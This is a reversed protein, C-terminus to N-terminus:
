DVYPRNLKNLRNDAFYTLVRYFFHIAKTAKTLGLKIMMRRIFILYWNLFREYYPLDPLIIKSFGLDRSIQFKSFYENNQAQQVSTTHIRYFALEADLFYFKFGAKTLKLWMPRDEWFPFEEEFYGVLNFISRKFFTTPAVVPCARLLIKYQEQPTISLRNFKWEPKGRKQSFNSEKFDEFYIKAIGHIVQINRKLNAKTFDICLKICEASLIDDGAIVKVWEGNAKYLGRNLNASIGTNILNTIIETRIFRGKNEEVWQRCIEVSNDTSCDDSIVLEINQYTQAKASELTELVFKASNYTVVIVSVLM